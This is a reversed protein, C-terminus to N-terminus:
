LRVRIQSVQRRRRLGSGHRRRRPSSSGKRLKGSQVFAVRAKVYERLLNRSRTRYPEALLGARLYTTGLANAEEIVLAKRNDFRASALNFTFGLMFALLGLMAAVIEGIPEMPTSESRRNQYKGPLIGVKASLLLLAVTAGGISWLPLAVLSERFIPTGTGSGDTSAAAMVLFLIGNM